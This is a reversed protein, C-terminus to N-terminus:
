EYVTITKQKPEVEYCLIKDDSNINFRYEDDLDQLESVPQSVPIKYYKGTSIVKFVYEYSISWRHTYTWTKQIFSIDNSDNQCYYSEIIDESNFYESYSETIDESNFYETQKM